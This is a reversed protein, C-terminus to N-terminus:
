LGNKRVELIRDQQKQAVQAPTLSGGLMQQILPNIVAQSVSGPVESTWGSKVPNKKVFDMVSKVLPPLLELNAKKITTSIPVAGGAKITGIVQGEDSTFYKLLEVAWEQNKSKQPVGYATGYFPTLTSPTGALVGPLTAFDPTFNMTGAATAAKIFTGVDGSIGLYLCSKGAAFLAQAQAPTQGLFGKQYIDAKGLTQLATLTKVFGPDTYNATLPTTARFNKFMNDLESTSVATPLMADLMWSVQFTSNGGIALGEYGAKKCKNTLAILSQISAFKKTSPVVAKSAKIAGPNTWLVNYYQVAQPVAYYNGDAQKFAVAPPGMRSSLKATEFITSLDVLQKGAVMNTYVSSNLPVLGIDPAGDAILVQLNSGGKAANTVTAFEITVNPHKKTFASAVAPWIVQGSSGTEFQVVLKVPSSSLAANANTQSSGAIFVGAALSLASIGAVKKRTIGFIKQM